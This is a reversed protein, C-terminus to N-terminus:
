SQSAFSRSSLSLSCCCRFSRLPANPSICIEKREIEKCSGSFVRFQENLCTNCRSVSYSSSIFSGNRGKRWSGLNEEDHPIASRAAKRRRRVVCVAFLDRAARATAAWSRPRQNEDEEFPVSRNLPAPDRRASSVHVVLTASLPFYTCCCSLHFFSIPREDGTRASEVVRLARRVASSQVSFFSPTSALAPPVLFPSFALRLVSSLLTSPSSSTNETSRFM